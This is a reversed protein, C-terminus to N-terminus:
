YLDGRNNEWEDGMLAKRPDDLDVWGLFPQSVRYGLLQQMELPYKRVADLPVALYQNEEQM